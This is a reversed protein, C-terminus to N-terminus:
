RDGDATVERSFGYQRLSCYLAAIMNSTLTRTDDVAEIEYGALRLARAALEGRRHRQAIYAGRAATPWELWDVPKGPVSVDEAPGRRRDRLAAIITGLMDKTLTMWAHTKDPDVEYGALRLVEEVLPGRYRSAAIHAAQRERPWEEFDPPLEALSDPRDDARDTAM